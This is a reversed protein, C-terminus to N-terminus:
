SAEAAPTSDPEPLVLNGQWLPVRERGQLLGGFVPTIFGCVVICFIVAINGIWVFSIPGNVGGEPALHSFLLVPLLGWPQQRLDGCVADVTVFLLFFLGTQLLLVAPWMGIHFAEAGSSFSIGTTTDEDAIQGMEHAYRNGGVNVNELKHPNIIHPVWNQFYVYVPLYGFVHGEATFGILQSDVALMTLRDLIGSPAGYYFYPYDKYGETREKNIRRLLAPNAMYNLVVDARKSAPDDPGVDDRGINALPTVFEQTLFAFLLITLVHRLKIRYHAWALGLVWCTFPTLMAQKSFALMGQWTAYSIAAFTTLSLSHRGGSGRVTAITGLLIGLPLFYNVMAIAHLISGNGGPLYILGLDILAVAVYCGLASIRFNIEPVHLLGAVGDSTTALQRAVYVAVFIAALTGTEVGLTLVPDMLHTDAPQGLVAKIITGVGVTLLSYFFVYGGSPRSFGGATNFAFTTLMAFAFILLVYPVSTGELLEVLALLASFLFAKVVPIRLPLVIRMTGWIIDARTLGLPRECHRQFPM